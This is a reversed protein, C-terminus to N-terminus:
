SALETKVKEVLDKLTFPKPLFNFDREVGFSEDFASEGFGSIFLVKIDPYIPLIKKIMEPGTMGPMMVDSVIMDLEPKKEEILKLADEGSAAEFVEYGKNSLARTSFLRVPAEDEVILIKGTGTLDQASDIRKSAKAEKVIEKAEELGEEDANFRKLYIKFSTGKDIESKVGIFGGTQNIIGYVTALGLGTGKGVDKTTFFPEFIKRMTDRSMGSGNDTLSVVVYEGEPTGDEMPCYIEKPLSNRKTLSLNETSIIINGQEERELAHANIADRANVALNVLVQEIQTKDVKTEWLNKAYQIDLNINAGILRKILNSINAIDDTLNLVKPQMTQKRSFALLQSVLNAARNANQKIQMIDAFSQEGPKHRTLLLDCFGIMATLLNNFDHAVGGALQGVAQMKQSQVFKEELTKKETTDIIYCIFKDFEDDLQKIFFTASSNEDYSYRINTDQMRGKAVDQWALIQGIRGLGSRSIFSSLFQDGSKDEEKILKLLDDNAFIIKLDKDIIATPVPTSDIYKRWVDSIKPKNVKINVVTVPQLSIQYVIDEPLNVKDVVLKYKSEGKEFKLTAEFERRRGDKIVNNLKEVLLSTTEIQYALDTFKDHGALKKTEFSSVGLTSFDIYLIEKEKNIIAFIKEQKKSARLFCERLAFNNREKKRLKSFLRFLYLVVLANVGFLTSLFLPSDSAGFISTIPTVLTLLVVVFIAIIVEFYSNIKFNSDM